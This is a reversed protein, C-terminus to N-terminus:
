SKKNTSKVTGVISYYLRCLLFDLIVATGVANECPPVINLPEIVLLATKVFITGGVFSTRPSWNQLPSWKQPVMKTWKQPGNKHPVMKSFATQLATIKSKKVSPPIPKIFKSYMIDGWHVRPVLYLYFFGM